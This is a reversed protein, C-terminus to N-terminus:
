MKLTKIKKYMYDAHKDDISCKTISISNRARVVRYTPATEAHTNCTVYFAGITMYLNASGSVQVCLPNTCEAILLRSGTCCKICLLNYQLATSYFMAVMVTCLNRYGVTTLVAM